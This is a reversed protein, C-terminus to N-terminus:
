DWSMNDPDKRFDRKAKPLSLLWLLESAIFWFAFGPDIKIKIILSKLRDIPTGLIYPTDNKIIEAIREEPNQNLLQMYGRLFRARAEYIKRLTAPKYKWTVAELIKIYGIGYFRAMVTTAYDVGVTKPFGDMKDMEAADWAFLGGTIYMEPPEALKASRRYRQLIKEWYPSKTKFLPRSDGSFVVTENKESIIQKHAEKFLEKIADPEPFDDADLCMAIPDSELPGHWSAIKNGINLANAKGRTGTNLHLFELNGKKVYAYESELEPDHILGPFVRLNKTEIEGHTALFVRVTQESQGRDTCDNTIFLFKVHASIPINSMMLTGLTTWLAPENRIPMIVTFYTDEARVGTDKYWNEAQVKNATEFLVRPRASPPLEKLAATLKATSDKIKPFSADLWEQPIEALFFPKLTEPM